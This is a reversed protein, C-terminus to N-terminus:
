LARSNDWWEVPTCGASKTAYPEHKAPNSAEIPDTSIPMHRHEKKKKQSPPTDGFFFHHWCSLTTTHKTPFKFWSCRTLFPGGKTDAAAIKTLITLKFIHQRFPLVISSQQGPYRPITPFPWLSNRNIASTGNKSEPSETYQLIPHHLPYQNQASAQSSKQAKITSSNENPWPITCQIKTNM